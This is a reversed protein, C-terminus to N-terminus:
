SVIVAFLPSLIRQDLIDYRAQVTYTGTAGGLDGVQSVTLDKITDTDWNFIMTNDATVDVLASTDDFGSVTVRSPLNIDDNLKTIEIAADDIISQKFLTKIESTIDKNGVAVETSIKLDIKSGLKIHKTTLRNTSKLLLPQTISFFTDEFLSFQHFETKLKSAAFQRITWVDIFNGVSSADNNVVVSSGNLSYLGSSNVTGDLLVIYDGTGQRYIGSAGASYNSTDFASDSTAVSSNAFNMLINAEPMSDKILGDADLITSPDIAADESFITVASIELPDQFAGDNIFLLRLGVRQSVNPRNHRSVFDQGNVQM